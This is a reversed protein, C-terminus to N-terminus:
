SLDEQKNFYHQCNPCICRIVLSHSVYTYDPPLQADLAPTIQIDSVKGCCICLLHDHPTCIRDFRDSGGAVEIRRIEGETVMLTLNRYVTGIAISPMKERAAQYIQDASLHEHSDHIIAAILRRQKTM